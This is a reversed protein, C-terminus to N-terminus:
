GVADGAAAKAALWVAANVHLEDDMLALDAGAVANM